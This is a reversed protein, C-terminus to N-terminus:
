PNLMRLEGISSAIAVMRVPTNGSVRIEYVYAKETAPMRLPEPSLVDATFIQDGDAYVIVTIYRTTGEEPIDILLSGNFSLENIYNTNLQGEVNGAYDLFLEANIAKIEDVYANYADLNGMFAFDASVKLAAFNMPNPLAFKKSLWEYTTFNIASADLQYVRNDINNIAFIDSTSRDVFM